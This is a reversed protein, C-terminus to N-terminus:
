APRTLEQGTNKSTTGKKGLAKNLSEPLFCCLERCYINNDRKIFDKDLNFKMCGSIQGQLWGSFGELESIDNLFNEFSHWRPDVFARGFYGRADEECYCRKLMNQWLQKAQKWHALSKNFKGLYGYNYVSATYPDKVKGMRANQLNVEAVYGSEFIVKLKDGKKRFAKFPLGENSKFDIDVEEWAAYDKLKETPDYVNGSAALHKKTRCKYGSEVFQIWTDVGKSGLVVYETGFLSKKVDVM